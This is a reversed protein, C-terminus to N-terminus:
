LERLLWADPSKAPALCRQGMEVGGLRKIVPQFSSVGQIETTCLQQARAKALSMEQKSTRLGSHGLGATATLTSPLKGKLCRHMQDTRIFSNPVRDTWHFLCRLDGTSQNRGRVLWTGRHM